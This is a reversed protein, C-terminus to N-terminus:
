TLLKGLAHPLRDTPRTQDWPADRPGFAQAMALVSAFEPLAIDPQAALWARDFVPMAFQGSHMEIWRPADPALAFIDDWPLVGEGLPALYRRVGADEYRLVADDIHVQAIFPAVRRAAELPDEMRCVVNVPDFAVGLLQPGVTEVLRVVEGTTIEEHTKILLRSRTDRLLPACRLLLAAVADRQARWTVQAHFRDEIMGIVFFLDHIGIGAALGVLRRVGAELDGDGARAVPEGRIPLAPNVVGLSASIRLGLRDAEARAERLEGADLTPSLEWLSNFLVGALGLDAAARLAQAAGMERGGPLSSKVIGIM